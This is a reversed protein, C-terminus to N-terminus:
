SLRGTILRREVGREVRPRLWFYILATAALSSALFGLLALWPSVERGVLALIWGSPLFLSIEAASSIPILRLGFALVAFKLLSITTSPHAFANILFSLQYCLTFIYAYIMVIVSMFIVGDFGFPFRCFAFIFPVIIAPSCILATALARYAVLQNLGREGIIVNEITGFRFENQISSMASFLLIGVSTFCSARIALLLASDADVSRAFLAMSLLLTQITVGILFSSTVIRDRWQTKVM